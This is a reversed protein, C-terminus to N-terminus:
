GKKWQTRMKNHHMVTIYVSTKHELREREKLNQERSLCEEHCKGGKCGTKVTNLRTNRHLKNGCIICIRPKM